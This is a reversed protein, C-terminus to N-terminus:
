QCVVVRDPSQSRDPSLAVCATADPPLPLSLLVSMTSGDAMQLAAAWMDDAQQVQKISGRIVRWKSFDPTWSPLPDNIGVPVAKSIKGQAEIALAVADNARQRQSSWARYFLVSPTLLVASFVLWGVAAMRAQQSVTHEFMEGIPHSM